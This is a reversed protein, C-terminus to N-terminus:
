SRGTTTKGVNGTLDLDDMLPWMNVLGRVVRAEADALDVSALHIERDFRKYTRCYRFLKEIPCRVKAVKRTRESDESFNFQGHEKVPPTLVTAGHKEIHYFHTLGKDYVYVANLSRDTSRDGAIRKGVDEREHLANVSTSGPYGPSMECIYGNGAAVANHKMTTRHKYDSYILCHLAPLSPNEIARETADGMFLATDEALGLMSRAPTPTARRAQELTPWPQHAAFIVDLAKLVTIYTRLVTMESVAFHLQYSVTSDGNHIM